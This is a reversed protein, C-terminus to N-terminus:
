LYSAGWALLLGAVGSLNHGADALLALSDSLLRSFVGRGRIGLEANAWRLLTTIVLMIHM